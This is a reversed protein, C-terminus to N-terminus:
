VQDFDVVLRDGTPRCQCTLVYGAAVEWPELSFNLEMNATGEIVKARCTCCMGGRCSYPMDIGLREGAELITEGAHLHMAHSQGDLTITVPTGVDGTKIPTKRDGATPASTAFLEVHIRHAAIGLGELVKRGEVSMEEPGCLYVDDISNIEGSRTMQPDLTKMLLAIKEGSLRGSLLSIEQAERSLVHHVSFRGLYRDKLDELAERFLITASNRNGYFLTMRADPDRALRTKIISLIPTIGSGAAFFVAHTGSGANSAAGFRGMPAMVDLVDGTKLARNAFTSFVGGEVEKVAVRLEGEDEGTCISYSRRIDEGDIETRLTLYQGQEFRFADRMADTLEFAISVAEPTERRIDRITLTHFKSM